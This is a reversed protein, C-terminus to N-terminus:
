MFFKYLHQFEEDGIYKLIQGVQRSARVTIPLSSESQTNNWNMKTLALTEGAIRLPSESVSDYRLLLPKPIYMGPYERYFEVSGRAYLSGRSSDLDFFTGRLPPYYGSRFLRTLSPGFSVLDYQEVSAERLAAEVGDKEAVNFVSTKHVVVRAPLNRHERRYTQLADRILDHAADQAMHIQRDDKSRAAEAGRVIVGLGRENFVQAISTLL